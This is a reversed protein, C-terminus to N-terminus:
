NFKWADEKILTKHSKLWNEKYEKLAKEAQKKTKYANGEKIRTKDLDDCNLRKLIIPECNVCHSIYYYNEFNKNEM